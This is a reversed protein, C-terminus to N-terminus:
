QGRGQASRLTREIEWAPLGIEAAAAALPRLDARMEVARCAAWFLRANREGNVSATIFRVLYATDRNEIPPASWQRQPRPFLADVAAWDFPVGPDDGDALIEYAGAPTISPPAAVYGGRGRFDLGLRARAHNGGGGPAFYLHLGGSPTRVKRFVGALLGATRLRELSAMGPRQDKVDVDLV